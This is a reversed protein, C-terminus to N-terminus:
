EGSAEKRAEASATALQKLHKQPDKKFAPTCGDCCFRVLTNTPRHVYNIPEGMGGLKEGSVLCTELPYSATQAAVIMQDMKAHYKEKDKEFSEVCADCCFKVTRGDIQKVVPEGMSGLKGGSVVCVDIPYTDAPRTTPNTTPTAPADESIFRLSPSPVACCSDSMAQELVQAASQKEAPAASTPEGGSASFILLGAGAALAIGGGILLNTM